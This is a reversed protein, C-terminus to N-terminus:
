LESLLPYCLFVTNLIRAGFSVLINRVTQYVARSKLFMAPFIGAVICMFPFESLNTELVCNGPVHM